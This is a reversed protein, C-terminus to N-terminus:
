QYQRLNAEHKLVSLRSAIASELALREVEPTPTTFKPLVLNPGTLRPQEDGLERCLEEFEHRVEYVILQKVNLKRWWNQIRRAAKEEM